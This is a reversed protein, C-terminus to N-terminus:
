GDDVRAAGEVAGLDPELKKVGGVAPLTDVDDSEPGGDLFCCNENPSPLGEPVVEDAESLPLIM